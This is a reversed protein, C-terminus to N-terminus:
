TTPRGESAGNQGSGNGGRHRGKGVVVEHEHHEPEQRAHPAHPTKEDGEHPHGLEHPCVVPGQNSNDNFNWKSKTFQIQNHQGIENTVPLNQLNTHHLM